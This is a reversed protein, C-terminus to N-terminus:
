ERGRLVDTLGSLQEIEFMPVVYELVNATTGPWRERPVPNLWAIHQFHTRLKQLFVGTQGIRDMSLGGRVAGADSFILVASNKADAQALLDDINEGKMRHRDPYLYNKPCNRFYYIRVQGLNSDQSLSEVLRESFPHFPVMSGDQDLLLWLDFQNVRKPKFIPEALFGQRTVQNITAAVDVEDSVGQRVFRRLRRWNHTLQREPLPLHDTALIFQGTETEIAQPTMKTPLSERLRLTASPEYEEPTPVSGPRETDRAPEGVPPEGRSDVVEDTSPMTDDPEETSKFLKSIKDSLYHVFDGFQKRVSVDEVRQTEADGRSSDAADDVRQAEADGRSDLEAPWPMVRDRMFNDFHLEFQWSDDQSKVWLAHCLQKLARKDPMGYGAEVARLLLLYDDVGLTTFGKTRIYNFLDFLPLTTKM